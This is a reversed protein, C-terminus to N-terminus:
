RNARELDFIRKKMSRVDFEVDSVRVRLSIERNKMEEMDSIIKDQKHIIILNQDYIAYQVQIPSLESLDSHTNSAKPISSKEEETLEVTKREDVM